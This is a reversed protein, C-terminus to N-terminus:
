SCIPLYKWKNQQVKIVFTRAGLCRARCYNNDQQDTLRNTLHELTLDMTQFEV